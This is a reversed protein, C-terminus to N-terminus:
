TERSLAIQVSDAIADVYATSGVDNPDPPSIFDIGGNEHVCVPWYGDENVKEATKVAERLGEVFHEHAQRADKRSSSSSGVISRLIILPTYYLFLLPQMFARAWLPFIGVFTSLIGTISVGTAARLTTRLSAISARTPVRFATLSFGSINRLARRLFSKKRISDDNGLNNEVAAQLYGTLSTSTQMEQFIPNRVKNNIHSYSIPKQMRNAISNELLNSNQNHRCQHDNLKISTILSPSKLSTSLRMSLLGLFALSFPYRAM